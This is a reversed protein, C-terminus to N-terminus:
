GAGESIECIFPSSPSGGGREAACDMHIVSGPCLRTDELSIESGIQFEHTGNLGSANSRITLENVDPASSAIEDIQRNTLHGTPIETQRGIHFQVVRVSLKGNNYTGSGIRTRENNRALCEAQARGVTLDSLLFLSLILAFTIKSM